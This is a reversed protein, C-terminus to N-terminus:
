QNPIKWLCKTFAIRKFSEYDYKSLPNFDINDEVNKNIILDKVINHCNIFLKSM